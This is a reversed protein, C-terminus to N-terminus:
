QLYRLIIMGLGYHLVQLLLLLWGHVQLGRRVVPVRMLIGRLLCMSNLEDLQAGHGLIVVLLRLLGIAVGEVLLAVQGLVLLAFVTLQLRIRTVSLGRSHQTGM